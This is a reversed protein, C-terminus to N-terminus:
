TCLNQIAKTTLFLISGIIGLFFSLAIAKDTNDLWKDSADSNKALDNLHRKNLHFVLIVLLITLGFFIISWILTAAQFSTLSRPPTKLIINVFFGVAATSIILYTKDIEMACQTWIPAIIKKAENNM